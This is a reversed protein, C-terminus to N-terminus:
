PNAEEPIADEAEKDRKDQEALLLKLMEVGGVHRQWSDRAEQLAREMDPLTAQILEKM